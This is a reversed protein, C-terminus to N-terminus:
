DGERPWRGGSPLWLSFVSDASRIQVAHIRGWGYHGRVVQIVQVHSPRLSFRAHEGSYTLRGSDWSLKGLDWAYIGEFPRVQEGPLLAALESGAPIVGRVEMRKAMRLLFRNSWWKDFALTLLGVAPLSAIVVLARNDYELGFRSAAWDILVLMAILFVG